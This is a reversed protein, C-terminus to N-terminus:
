DKRVGIKLFPTYKVGPPPPVPNNKDEVMARITKKSARWDVLDFDGKGIVFTRFLLPDEITVSVETQLFATGANSRIGELKNVLIFDRMADHLIKMPDTYRRKVEEEYKADALRKYDRLRVFEEVMDGPSMTTIDM